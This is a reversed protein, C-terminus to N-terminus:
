YQCCVYYSPSCTTCLSSHVMHYNHCRPFIVQLNTRQISVISREWISFILSFSVEKLLSHSSLPNFSHIFSHNHVLLPPFNSQLLIFYIQLIILISLSHSLSLFFLSSFPSLSSSILIKQIFLSGNFTMGGIMDFINFLFHSFSIIHHFPDLDSPLKHNHIFPFLFPHFTPFSKSSYILPLHYLYHSFPTIPNTQIFPLFLVLAQKIWTLSM